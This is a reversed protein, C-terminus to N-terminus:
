KHMISTTITDFCFMSDIVVFFNTPIATFFSAWRLFVNKWEEHFFTKFFHKKISAAKQGLALFAHFFYIQVNLFGSLRVVPFVTLGSFGSM